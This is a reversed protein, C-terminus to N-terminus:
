QPYYQTLLEKLSNVSASDVLSQVGDRMKGESRHGSPIQDNSREEAQLLPGSGAHRGILCRVFSLLICDPTLERCAGVTFSREGCEALRKIWQNLPARPLSSFFLGGAGRRETTGVALCRRSITLVLM